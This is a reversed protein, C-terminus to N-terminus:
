RKKRAQVSAGTSQKAHSPPPHHAEGLNRQSIRTLWGFISTESTRVRPDHLVKLRQGGSSTGEAAITSLSCTGRVAFLVILNRRDAFGPLLTTLTDSLPNAAQIRHGQTDALRPIGATDSHQLGSGSKCPMRPLLLRWIDLSWGASFPPVFYIELRSETSLKDM